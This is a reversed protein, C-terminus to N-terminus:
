NADEGETLYTVDVYALILAEIDGAIIRDAFLEWEDDQENTTM